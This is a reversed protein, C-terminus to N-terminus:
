ELNLAKRELGTLKKKADDVIQEESRSVEKLIVEYVKQISLNDTPKHKIANVLRTAAELCKDELTIM